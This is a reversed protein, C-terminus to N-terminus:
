RCFAYYMRYIFQEKKIAQEVPTMGIVGGFAPLYSYHLNLLKGSFESVIRESLIKHVNTIIYDPEFKKILNILLKDEKDERKFSMVECPIGKLLAYDIAGCKRDTIVSVVKFFDSHIKSYEHIFKLNGGGGSGLFIIKKM